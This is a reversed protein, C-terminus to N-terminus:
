PRHYPDQIKQEEHIQWLLNWRQLLYHIYQLLEDRGINGALKAIMESVYYVRLDIMRFVHPDDPKDILFKINPGIYEGLKKFFIETEEETLLRMLKLQSHIILICKTYLKLTNM